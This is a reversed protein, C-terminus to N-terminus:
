SEGAGPIEGVMKAPIFSPSKAWRWTEFGSRAKWGVISFRDYFCGLAMAYFGVFGEIIITDTAAIANWIKDRSLPM